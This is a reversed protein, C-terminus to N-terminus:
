CEAAAAAAAKLPPQDSRLVVVDTALVEVVGDKLGIIFHQLPEPGPIRGGVQWDSGQVVGLWLLKDLGLSYLWHAFRGEDNIASWASAVSDAWALVVSRQDPDDMHARLALAVKGTAITSVLVAREDNAEWMLGPMAPVVQMTM